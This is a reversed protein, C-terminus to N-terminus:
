IVLTPAVVTTQGIGIGMIFRGALIQGYSGNATVYIIVGVIWVLALQRTAWIRGVRDSVLFAVLAGAVSGIQVMATINGTKQAVLNANTKAKDVNLHYESKFSPQAITGSILGEDLGRAVGKFLCNAM